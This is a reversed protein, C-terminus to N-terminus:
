RAIKVLNPYAGVSRISYVLWIYYLRSMLGVPTAQSTTPFLTAAGCLPCAPKAFPQLFRRGIERLLTNTVLGSLYLLGVQCGVPGRRNTFQM